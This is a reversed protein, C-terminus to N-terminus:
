EPFNNKKKGKKFTRKITLVNQYIKVISKENIENLCLPCLNKEEKKDEQERFLQMSLQKWKRKEDQTRTNENITLYIVIKTPLLNIKYNHLNLGHKKFYQKLYNEIELSKFINVLSENKNKEFYKLKWHQQNNM